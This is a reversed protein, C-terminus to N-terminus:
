YTAGQYDIPAINLKAWDAAGGTEGAPASHRFGGSSCGNLSPRRPRSSACRTRTSVPRPEVETEIETVFGYKYGENLAAIQSVPASM